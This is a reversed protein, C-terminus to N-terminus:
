RGLQDYVAERIIDDRNAGAEPAAYVQTMILGILKRDPDVWFYTGEYGGGIWLGGVGQSGDYLKGSNVWLNYGNYGWESDLQTQPSTMESIADDSLVRRGGAAGRGMIMHLFDAYAEPTAVMGEGGLYLESATTYRPLDGGFIDLEGAKAERLVGDAGSFYPLLEVGEPAGYQLGQIELPDTIRERVLEALSKGTAREAAMGLITTNLGYYYVEGPQQILPLASLRNLFEDTNRSALLEANRMGDYLCPLQTTAYYFGAEHNLLDRITMKTQLPQTPLPCPLGGLRSRASDNFHSAAILEAISAGEATRAVSLASLEPLYDTVDDDLGLEGSEVLSLVTSITVLKSMSWIRFWTEGNIEHDRILDANTAAREYIIRGLEDEVRVYIAPFAGNSVFGDVLSDLAAPDEIVNASVPLDESGPDRGCGFLLGAFVICYVLKHAKIKMLFQVRWFKM